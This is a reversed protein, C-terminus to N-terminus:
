AIEASVRMADGDGVMSQKGENVAVNSEAPSIGSVAVPLSDHSQRNVLEQTTEQKV